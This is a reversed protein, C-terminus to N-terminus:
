FATEEKGNIGGATHQLYADMVHEQDVRRSLRGMLRTLTFVGYKGTYVRDNERNDM